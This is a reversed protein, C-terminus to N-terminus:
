QQLWIQCCTPFLFFYKRNIRILLIKYFLVPCKSMSIKPKWSAKFGKEPLAYPSSCIKCTMLVATVLDLFLTSLLLFLWFIKYHFDRSVQDAGLCPWFFHSKMIAKFSSIIVPTAEMCPRPAALFLKVKQMKKAQSTWSISNSRSQLVLYLNVLVDENIFNSWTTM